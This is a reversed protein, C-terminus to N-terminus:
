AAEKRLGSAGTGAERSAASKDEGTLTRRHGTGLNTHAAFCPMIDSTSCAPDPLTNLLFAAM